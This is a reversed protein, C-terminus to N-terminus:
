GRGDEVLDALGDLVRRLGFEFAHDADYAAQHTQGTATGVRVALPYREPDMVRALVPASADWWQADSMATDRTTTQSDIAIRAVSHVFGLLFTLAADMDADDLGVGDFAALEHEYKAMTGPGLPPRTIALSVLWPARQYLALNERAVSTARDRWPREGHDARPMRGFATDVMLELLEAKGPVYTYLTMPTVDLRGAVRRMTLAELGGAAALELAADVVTDVTLGQRPGRRSVGHGPQRWLLELTRTPDGGASRGAGM